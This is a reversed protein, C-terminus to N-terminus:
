IIFSIQLCIYLICIFIGILFRNDDALKEIEQMDFLDFAHDEIQLGENEDKTLKTHPTFYIHKQNRVPRYTEDGLFNKVKFNFLIYIQGENLDKLM